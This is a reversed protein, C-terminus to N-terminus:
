RLKRLKYEIVDLREDADSRMNELENQVELSIDSQAIVEAQKKVIEPLFIEYNEKLKERFPLSLNSMEDISTVQSQYLWRLIQEGNYKKFGLSLSLQELDKLTNGYLSQKM